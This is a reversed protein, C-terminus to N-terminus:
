FAFLGHYWAYRIMDVNSQLELKKMLRTKHTGVTQRSICLESAVTDISKGDLLKLFIQYERRTLIKQPPLIEAEKAPNFLIKEAIVPCVYKGGVMIQNIAELFQSPESNKTLYGSAGARLIASAVRTDNSLSFVLIPPHNKWKGIITKVLAPGALYGPISINIILLDFITEELLNILENCNKAEAVVVMNNDKNNDKILNKLAYRIIPHDDAIILRISKNDNDRIEALM